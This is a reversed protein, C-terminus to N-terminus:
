WDFIERMKRILRDNSSKHQVYERLAGRLVQSITEDNAAAKKEAAEKLASDIRITLCTEV